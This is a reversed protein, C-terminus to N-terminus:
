TWPRLPLKEDDMLEFVLTEYIVVSRGGLFGFKGERFEEMVSHASHFVERVFSLM